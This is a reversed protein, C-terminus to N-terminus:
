KVPWRSQAEKIVAFRSDQGESVKGLEPNNRTLFEINREGGTLLFDPLAIKYTRSPDIPQEKIMWRGDATRSINAYQLWGGSGRNAYGATLTKMLLSGKMEALVNKNGFPLMRLVDYQTLPGPQIVDDIRIGGSNYLAADAEPYAHLFATALLETMNSSGNRVVSERGDLAEPVQAIVKTPEFGSKRFAEYARDTWQKALAAVTPDDEIADTIRQLRSEIRVRKTETDFVIDHIYASRVNSDAKCIPTYHTGRFVEINEHEHGGMIIDIEPVQEALKVDDAYPQHTLAILVDVQPRLIQAQEKAAQLANTYTVWPKHVQDLTVGIIGVRMRGGNQGEVTFVVNQRVGPFHEGAANRVNGSFWAFRSERIRHQLQDETLDFEHNGFTAYDLGIANLMSVMQAGAIPKGDVVATGIVSPSLVDGALVMYTNPNRALLQRRLTAVRAMGGEKGGAIATIEYLDNIQLLTARIEEAFSLASCLVLALVLSLRRVNARM